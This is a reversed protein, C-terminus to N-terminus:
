EDFLYTPEQYYRVCKRALLDCVFAQLVDNKEATTRDAELECLPYNIRLARPAVTFRTSGPPMLYGAAVVDMVEVVQFTPLMVLGAFDPYVELLPDLHYASTRDVKGIAIYRAVLENMKRVRTFLDLSLTFASFVKGNPLCLSALSHLDRLDQFSLELTSPQLVVEPIKRIESFLEDSPVGCVIHNWADLELSHDDAELVQVLIHPIGMQRFASARNAGDLVMYREGSGQLPVVIPPNRLVGGARLKEILPLIRQEDHYEHMVLDALPVVALRPLDNSCDM